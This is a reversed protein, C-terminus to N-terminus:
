RLGPLFPGRSASPGTSAQVMMMLGTSQKSQALLWRLLEYDGGGWSSSAKEWKRSLFCLGLPENVQGLNCLCSATFGWYLQRVQPSRTGPSQTCALQGELDWRPTLVWLEWLCGRSSCATDTDGVERWPCAPGRRTLAPTLGCVEQTWRPRSRGRSPGGTRGGPVREEPPESNIYGAVRIVDSIAQRGPVDCLFKALLTQPEAPLLARLPCGGMRLASAWAKHAPRM